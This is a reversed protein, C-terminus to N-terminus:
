VEKEADQYYRDVSNKWYLFLDTLYAMCVETTPNHRPLPQKTLYQVQPQAPRKILFPVLWYLDQKTVLQRMLWRCAGIATLDWTAQNGDIGIAFNLPIALLEYERDDSLSKAWLRVVHTQSRAFLFINWLSVLYDRREAAFISKVATQERPTLELLNTARDDTGARRLELYHVAYASSLDIRGYAYFIIGPPLQKSDVSAFKRPALPSKKRFM